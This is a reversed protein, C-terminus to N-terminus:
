LDVGGDTRVRTVMPAPLKHNNEAVPNNIRSYKEDHNYLYCSTARNGDENGSSPM